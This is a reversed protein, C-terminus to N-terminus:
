LPLTHFNMRGIKAEASVVRAPLNFSAENGSGLHGGSVNHFPTKTSCSPSSTGSSQKVKVSVVRTHPILCRMLAPHSPFDLSKGHPRQQYLHMHPQLKEWCMESCYSLLKRFPKQRILSNMEQDKSYLSFVQRPAKQFDTQQMEPNCAEGSQLSLLLFHLSIVVM